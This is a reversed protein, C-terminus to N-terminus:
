VQLEYAGFRRTIAASAVAGALEEHDERMQAISVRIHPEGHRHPHFPAGPAVSIGRSALYVLASEESRVPVWINFGDRSVVAVGKAELGRIFKARREDYTKKSAALATSLDPWKLMATLLRQNVGSVWSGGIRREHVRRIVDRSGAIACVRLDPHLDKSFTRVHVTQTPATTAASISPSSGLMGFHDIELVWTDHERCIAALEELRAPSTVVGTPNHVRPQLLVLAAGAEVASRVEHTEFGERDQSVPVCELGFRELLDLYPAFEADGVVVRDGYRSLMPLLEALTALSDAGLTMAQPAFPLCARLRDNLDPAIAEEPYGTFAPGDGLRRVFARLDPLLEPDPYGTSFDREVQAGFVQRFHRIPEHGSDKRLFTGRRGQTDLVGQTALIRWAQGVTSPSVALARALERVTPLRDGPLIAGRAALQAITRAIGDASRNTVAAGIQDIM